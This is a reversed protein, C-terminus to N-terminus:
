TYPCMQNQQNKSLESPSYIRGSHDLPDTFLVLKYLVKKSLISFLNTYFRGKVRVHPGNGLGAEM